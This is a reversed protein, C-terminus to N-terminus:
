PLYGLHRLAAHTAPARWADLRLCEILLELDAATDVDFDGRLEGVSLGDEAALDVLTQAADATSMPVRTLIDTFGSAGVLYYGGDLTRGIVLDRDHLAALSDVAVSADLQPSDTAMIVTREFGRDVAWRLLRTLRDGLSDGEQPIFLPAAHHPQGPFTAVLARFDFSDPTFAWGRAIGAPLADPAFFTVAVDQLFALYLEAAREMGIAKGLRTKTFGPLPARAVVLFLDASRACTHESM